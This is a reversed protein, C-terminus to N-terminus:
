EINYKKFMEVTTSLMNKDSLFKTSCQSIALAIEIKCFYEILKLNHKYLKNNTIYLFEPNIDFTNDLMNRIVATIDKSLEQMNIDNKKDENLKVLFNEICINRSEEINNEIFTKVFFNYFNEQEQNTIKGIIGYDIIGIIKPEDCIIINGPHLDCHFCNDFFISKMTFNVLHNYYINKDEDKVNYLSTGSLYEMVIIRSDYNTFEEYVYPIKVYNINQNNSYFEKIHKVENSFSIQQLLLNKNSYFIDLIHYLSNFLIYNLFKLISECQNLADIMNKEINNKLVKIAVYKDDMKAKYVIGIIGSNIMELTNIDIVYEKNTEGVKKLSYKLDKYIEENNYPVKDAYKKLYERQKKNFIDTNASVSQFIKMYFINDYSLSDVFYQFFMNKDSTLLFNYLGIIIAKLLSFLLKIM